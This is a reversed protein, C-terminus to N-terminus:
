RKSEVMQKDERLAFYRTEVKDMLARPLLPEQQVEYCSKLFNIHASWEPPSKIMEYTHFLLFNIEQDSLFHIGQRKCCNCNRTSMFIRSPYTTTSTSPIFGKCDNMCLLNVLLHQLMLLNWSKTSYLRVMWWSITPSSRPNQMNMSPHTSAIICWRPIRNHAFTVVVMECLVHPQSKIM